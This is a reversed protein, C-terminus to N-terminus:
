VYIVEIIADKAPATTFTVTKTGSTYTYATTATGNVKVTKITTVTGTLVFDDETGDGVFRETKQGPYESMVFLVFNHTPNCINSKVFDFWTTIYKKRAELPTTDASEFQFNTMVARRDFICGLIYDPDFLFATDNSGTTNGILDELWGPITTKIAATSKVADDTSFTQWYKVEEFNEPKLYQDNFIEPMVMTKAKQWFPGYMFMRQESKPTHRLIVHTGDSQTLTPTAHFFVSREEMLDSIIKIESTLWELFEKRYTTRLQTGTYSTGFEANFAVTLDYLTCAGKQASGADGIAAALAMRSLLTLRNYSEKRQEIDNGKETVVGAWFQGWEAENNFVIKIQNTYRTLADQWVESDMFYQEFPTVPHQEWMSGTSASSNTGNDYGAALNTYLDTNFAGSPLAWTSFFSIDRVTSNFDETSISDILTLPANYPRVSIMLRAGVIGLANFIEDTKFEKALRGADMFTATDIVQQYDQGTLQAMTANMLTYLDKRKFQAM